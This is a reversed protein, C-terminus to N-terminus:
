KKEFKNVKSIQTIRPDPVVGIPNKTSHQEYWISLRSSVLRFFQRWGDSKMPLAEHPTRDTMWYLKHAKLLHKKNNPLVARLHELNGNKGIVNAEDQEDIRCNWAACTHDVNSAMYIGDTQYYWQGKGGVGKLDGPCEIHLGPRRQTHGKKVRSEHITLYCVSGEDWGAFGPSAQMSAVIYPVYGHLKKPLQKEILEICNKEKTLLLPMMNINIEEKLPPPLRLDAYVIPTQQYPYHCLQMEETARFAISKRSKDYRAGSQWLAGNRIPEDQVQIHKAYIFKNFQLAFSWIKEVLYRMGRFVSFPDNDDYVAIL